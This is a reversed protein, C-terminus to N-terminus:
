KFLHILLVIFIAYLAIKARSLLIEIRQEHPTSSSAVLGPIQPRQGGSELEVDVKDSSDDIQESSASQGAILQSFRLEFDGVHGLVPVADSFGDPIILGHDSPQALIEIHDTRVSPSWESYFGSVEGLRVHVASPIGSDILCDIRAFTAPLLHLTVGIWDSETRNEFDFEASYSLFGSLTCRELDGDVVKFIRLDFADVQRNSGFFSYIGRERRRGEPRLVGRITEVVKAPNMIADNGLGVKPLESQLNMVLNRQLDAAKFYLGWDWPVQPAGVPKGEKDFERIAWPYLSTHETEVVLKVQLELNYDLGM